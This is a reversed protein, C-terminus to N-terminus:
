SFNSETDRFSISKGYFLNKLRGVFACFFVCVGGWFM